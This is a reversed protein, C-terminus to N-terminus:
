SEQRMVGNVDVNFESGRWTVRSTFFSRGWLWCLLLDRVPILWLDRFAARLAGAHLPQAFHVGLRALVCLAFLAWPAASLSSSAACLLLGLSALPLYFSLFMMPYSRPRLVRITRLWRTEHGTLAKFSPEHHKAVVVAPSLVIRLNQRRILEGLRYDDALHNATARLGDVAELTSRRLALTQGSAYGGYGFLWTLLVSPMYWENIYMAGLRSWILPTPADRYTSTVLGVQPDQLPATVTRLYDPRVLTDSDAITLIEHRAQALMNILNSCKNNSGHLQPNIVIDIALAPFDAKLREAIPIAADGPDRVGFVIQFQPYDQECFSRLHEYLGPEAGCLPKLVTIPPCDALQPLRVTARRVQWVLVATLTLVAYLTALSLVILGLIEPIQLLWSRM